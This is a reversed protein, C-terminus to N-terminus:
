RRRIRRTNRAIRRLYQHDLIKMLKGAKTDWIKVANVWFKGKDKDGGTAIKTANPSYIVVNVWEHGTEITLVNKGSEVNWVRATGDWSGSLVRSGDASWCLAGVSNTHGVWKAIVKRTEVNWLRVKGDGCGSAVTWGNPSLAM